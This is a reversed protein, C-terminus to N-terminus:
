VRFRGDASTGLNREVLDLQPIGFSLGHDEGLNRELGALRNLEGAARPVDEVRLGRVGLM